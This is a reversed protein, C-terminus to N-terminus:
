VPTFDAYYFALVVPGNQLADTLRVEGLTSPAVFDPATDGIDLAHANFLGVGLGLLIILSRGLTRM